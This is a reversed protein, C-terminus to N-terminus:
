HLEEDKSNEMESSRVGEMYFISLWLHEDWIIRGEVTNDRGSHPQGVNALLEDPHLGSIRSGYSRM